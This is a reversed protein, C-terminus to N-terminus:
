ALHTMSQTLSRHRGTLKLSASRGRRTHPQMSPDWNNQQPRLESHIRYLFLLDEMSASSFGARDGRDNFILQDFVQDLAATGWQDALTAAVRPHERELAGRADTQTRAAEPTDYLIQEIVSLAGTGAQPGSLGPLSLHRAVRGALSDWTGATITDDARAAAAKIKASWHPDDLVLFVKTPRPARPHKLVHILHLANFDGGEPGLVVGQPLLRNYAADAQELSGAESLELPLHGLLDRWALRTSPLKHVLLLRMAAAGHPYAPLTPSATSPSAAAAASTAPDRSEAPAILHMRCLEALWLELDDADQNPFRAGLAQFSVPAAPEVADLLQLFAPSLGKGAALMADGAPLRRYLWQPRFPNSANSDPM